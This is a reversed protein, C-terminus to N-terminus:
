LASFFCSACTQGIGEIYHQRVYIGTAVTYPTDQHCLVCPEKIWHPNIKIKSGTLERKKLQRVVNVTSM